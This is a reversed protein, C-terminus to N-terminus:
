LPVVQDPRVPDRHSKLAEVLGELFPDDRMNKLHETKGRFAAVDEVELLEPKEVDSVKLAFSINENKTDVLQVKDQEENVKLRVKVAGKWTITKSKLLYVTSIGMWCLIDTKGTPITLVAKKHKNCDNVFNEPKNSAKRALSLDAFLNFVVKGNTKLIKLTQIDVSDVDEEDIFKKLTAAMGQEQNILYRMKHKLYRELEPKRKGASPQQDKVMMRVFKSLRGGIDHCTVPLWRGVGLQKNLSVTGRGVVTAVTCCTCWTCMLGVVAVLGACSYMSVAAELTGYPRMLGDDVQLVRDPVRLNPLREQATFSFRRDTQGDVAVVFAHAPADDDVLEEGDSGFAKAGDPYAAETCRNGEEDRFRNRLGAWEDGKLTQWDPPEENEFEVEAVDPETGRVVGVSKPFTMKATHDFVHRTTVGDRDTVVLVSLVRPEEVNPAAADYGLKEEDEPSLKTVVNPEFSSVNLGFRDSIRAAAHQVPVAFAGAAAAAVPQLTAVGRKIESVKYVGDAQTDGDIDYWPGNAPDTAYRPVAATGEASRRSVYVTADTHLNDLPEVRVRFEDPFWGLYTEWVPRPSVDYFLRNPLPAATGGTLLAATGDTTLVVNRVSSEMCKDECQMTTGMFVASQQRRPMPPIGTQKRSLGSMSGVLTRSSDDHASATVTAYDNALVDQAEQIQLTSCAACTQQVHRKWAQLHDHRAKFPAKSDDFFLAPDMWGAKNVIVGASGIETEWKDPYADDLNKKTEVQLCFGADTDGSCHASDWATVELEPCAGEDECRDDGHLLIKSGVDGGGSSRKVRALPATGSWNKARAKFRGGKGLVTVAWVDGDRDMQLWDGVEISVRQPLMRARFYRHDEPLDEHLATPAATFQGTAGTYQLMAANPNLPGFKRMLGSSRSHPMWMQGNTDSVCLRVAMATWIVVLPLAVAGYFLYKSLLLHEDKRQDRRTEPDASRDVVTRFRYTASMKSLVKPFCMHMSMVGVAAFAVASLVMVAHGAGGQFSASTIAGLVILVCLCIDVSKQFQRSQLVASTTCCCAVGLFTAVICYLLIPQVIPYLLQQHVQNVTSQCELMGEPNIRSRCPRSAGRIYADITEFIGEMMNQITMTLDEGTAKIQQSVQGPTVASTPVAAAPVASPPVSPVGGGPPVAAM